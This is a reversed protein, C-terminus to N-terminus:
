RGGATKDSDKLVKVGMGLKRRDFNGLVEHPIWTRSVELILEDEGDGVPLEYERRVTVGKVKSREGKLEFVVEDLVRGGYTVTLVVPDEELGPARCYFELGIKKTKGGEARQGGGETRQGRDDTRQGKGREGKM